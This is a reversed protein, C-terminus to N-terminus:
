PSHHHRVIPKRLASPSDPEERPPTIGDRYDTVAPYFPGGDCSCETVHEDCEACQCACEDVQEGCNDCIVKGTVPDMSTELM